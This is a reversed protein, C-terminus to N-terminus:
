IYDIIKHKVEEHYLWLLLLISDLAAAWGFNLGKLLHLKYTDYIVPYLFMVGEGAGGGLLFDLSVHMLIGFSLAGLHMAHELKEKKLFYLAPILFLIAFFPTHTLTGHSLISNDVGISSLFWIIPLDIDPLLGGVGALFVTYTTFYKGYKKSYDRILDSAIIASLVHTVAYPM